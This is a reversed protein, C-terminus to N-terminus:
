KLHWDKDTNKQQAKKGIEDAKDKHEKAQRKAEEQKKKLKDDKKEADKIDKKAGAVILKNYIEYIFIVCLPICLLYFLIKNKEKLKLIKEYM